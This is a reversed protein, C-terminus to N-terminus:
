QAMAEAIEENTAAPEPAEITQPAPRRKEVISLLAAHQGSLEELTTHESPEWLPAGSKTKVGLDIAENRLDAYRQLDDSGPRQHGNHEPALKDYLSNGFQDGFARLARKLGDSVAEKIAKEVEQQTGKSYVGVGIDGHSVFVTGIQARVTVRAYFLKNATDHEYGELSHSWGDYGFIRNATDIADYAEIYSLKKGGAGDRQKVRSADIPEALAKLIDQQNM